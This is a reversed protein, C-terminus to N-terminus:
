SSVEASPPDWGTLILGPHLNEGQGKYVEQNHIIADIVDM